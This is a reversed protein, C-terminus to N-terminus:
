LTFKQERVGGGILSLQINARMEIYACNMESQYAFLGM